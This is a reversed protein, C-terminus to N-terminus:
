SAAPPPPGPPFLRWTRHARVRTIKGARELYEILRVVLRGDEAGLRRKMERQLVGPHERVQNEIEPVLRCSLDHTEVQEQWPALEPESAVLRRLRAIGDADGVVALAIGGRELEPVSYIVTVYRLDQRDERLWRRILTLNKRVQHAAKKYDRERLAKELLETGRHYAIEAPGPKRYLDSLAPRASASGGDSRNPDKSKPDSPPLSDTM